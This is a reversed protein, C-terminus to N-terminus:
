SGKLIFVGQLYADHRAKKGPKTTKRVYFLYNEPFQALQYKKRAKPYKNAYRVYMDRKGLKGPAGLNVALFEVALSHGLKDRWDKSRKDCTPNGAYLSVSTETDEPAEELQYSDTVDIYLYPDQWRFNSSNFVPPEISAMPISKLHLIEPLRPPHQNPILICFFLQPKLLTVQCLRM